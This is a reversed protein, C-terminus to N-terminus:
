FLYFDRIEPSTGLKRIRENLHKSCILENDGFTPKYKSVLCEAKTSTPIFASNFKYPFPPPSYPTISSSTTDM